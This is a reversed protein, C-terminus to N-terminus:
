KAGGTHGSRTLTDWASQYVRWAQTHLRPDARTLVELLARKEALYVRAFAPDHAAISPTNDILDACKITQAEAPAGVLHERDLAKREARRGPHGKSVDTLADVLIAVRPGFLARIEMLTVGTDEVTDHLLAAALVEPDSTVTAVLDCVAQPHIIYPDGTYKRTQGAHAVTAFHRADDILRIRDSQALTRM